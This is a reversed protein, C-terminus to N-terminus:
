SVEFCISEIVAQMVPACVANGLLRIQDRRNGDGISFKRGAIAQDLGMAARLEPPQLMRMWPQGGVWNVIAFRDVTTVTRLPADLSQWGGAKDTGYYVLLFPVGDGLAARARSARALTATARNPRYLPTWRYPADFDVIERATRPCSVSPRIPPPDGSRSLILFLRRRKQPVGFDAANLKLTTQSYGLSELASVFGAYADWTQMNVVNEIIIWTPDLAAAYRVVQFAKRRSSEDVPNSGRAHTHNTCEPSALLLEVRGLTGALQDVNIDEARSEFTRAEPFNAAYAAAAVPDADVGGLLAVGAAAAGWSSGGAGCFLDFARVSREAGM